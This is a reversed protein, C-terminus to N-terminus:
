SPNRRLRLADSLENTDDERREVGKRELLKGCLGIARVLGDAPRGAKIGERITLVVEVWDDPSVRANIGADGLVEIRREFLSIFLLIGTRDRTNFVEEEVFAQMARRHVTEDLLRPGTLLRKLPPVVHALLAGLTGAVVTLLATGWGTYLWALGWGAYVQYVLGELALALLAALSAGRWVAVEYRGSQPMVVPVVEGSTKGEAEAVAQRIRERDAETFLKEM